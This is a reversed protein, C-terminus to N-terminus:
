FRAPPARASPLHGTWHPRGPGMPTVTGGSPQGSRGRGEVPCSWPSPHLLSGPSSRLKPGTRYPRRRTWSRECVISASCCSSPNRSTVSHTWALWEPGTAVRQRARERVVSYSKWELATNGSTCGIWQEAGPELHCSRSRNWRDRGCNCTERVTTVVSRNRTSNRLCVGRGSNEWGCNGRFVIRAVSTSSNQALTGVSELGNSARDGEDRAHNPLPGGLPQLIWGGDQHLGWCSAV